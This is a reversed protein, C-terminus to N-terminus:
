KHNRNSPHILPRLNRDARLLSLHGAVLLAWAKGDVNLVAAEDLLSRLLSDDTQITAADFDRALKRLAKISRVELLPELTAPPLSAGAIGSVAAAFIAPDSVFGELVDDYVAQREAGAEILKAATDARSDTAGGDDSQRVLTALADFVSTDRFLRLKSEMLPNQFSRRLPVM